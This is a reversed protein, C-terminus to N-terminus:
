WDGRDRYDDGPFQNQNEGPGSFRPVPEKTSGDTVVERRIQAGSLRPFNGGKKNKRKGKRILPATMANIPVVYTVTSVKELVQEKAQERIEPIEPVPIQLAIDQVKIKWPGVKFEIQVTVSGDSKELTCVIGTGPDSESVSTIVAERKIVSRQWSYNIVPYYGELYAAYPYQCVPQEKLEKNERITIDGFYKKDESIHLLFNDDALSVNFSGEIVPNKGPESIKVLNGKYEVYVPLFDISLRFPSFIELCVRFKGKKGGVARGVMMWDHVAMGFKETNKEDTTSEFLSNWDSGPHKHMHWKYRCEGKANQYTDERIKETLWKGFDGGDKGTPVRVDGGSAEQVPLFVETVRFENENWDALGRWSIENGTAEMWGLCREYIEHSFIVKPLGDVFFDM